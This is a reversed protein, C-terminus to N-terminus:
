SGKKFRLVVDSLLKQHVDDKRLAFEEQWLSIWRHREVQAEARRFVSEGLDFFERFSPVGSYYLESSRRADFSRYLQDIEQFRQHSETRFGFDLLSRVYLFYGQYQNLSASPSPHVKLSELAHDFTSEATQLDQLPLYSVALYFYNSPVDFACCLDQFSKHSLKYSKTQFQSLATLFMAKERVEPHDDKLLGQAAMVTDLFRGEDFLDHLKHLMISKDM